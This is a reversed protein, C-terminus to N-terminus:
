NSSEKVDLWRHVFTALKTKHPVTKTQDGSTPGKRISFLLFTWQSIYIYIYIEKQPAAVWRPDHGGWEQPKWIVCLSAGCDTPSRQVLSWNTASVEIQCCVVSVVSL